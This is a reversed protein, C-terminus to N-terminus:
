NYPTARCFCHFHSGGAQNSVKRRAREKVGQHPKYKNPRGYVSYIEALSFTPEGKTSQRIYRM